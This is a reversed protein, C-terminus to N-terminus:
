MGNVRHPHKQVQLPLICAFFSAYFSESLNNDGVGRLVHNRVHTYLRSSVLQRAYRGEERSGRRFHSVMTPTCTLPHRRGQGIAEAPSLLLM